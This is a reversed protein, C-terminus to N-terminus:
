EWDELNRMYYDCLEVVAPNFREGYEPVGASFMLTSDVREPLTIKFENGNKHPVFKLEGGHAKVIMATNALGMGSGDVNHIGGSIGEEIRQKTAKDAPKGDDSVTIVIGDKTKKLSLRIHKECHHAANSFLALICRRLNKSDAVTVIPDEPIDQELIVSNGLVERTQRCVSLLLESINSNKPYFDETGYKYLAFTTYLRMFRLLRLNNELLKGVLKSEESNLSMECLRDITMMNSAVTEGLYKGARTVLENVGETYEKHEKM